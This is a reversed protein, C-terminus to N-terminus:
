AKRPASMMLTMEMANFTKSRFARTEMWRPGGGGFLGSSTISTQTANAPCLQRENQGCCSKLFDARAYFPPRQKILTGLFQDDAM